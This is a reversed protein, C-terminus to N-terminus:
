KQMDPVPLVVVLCMFNGRNTGPNHWSEVMQFIRSFLFCFFKLLLPVRSGGCVAIRRTTRVPPPAQLNRCFLLFFYNIFPRHELSRRPVGFFYNQGPAAMIAGCVLDYIHPTSGMVVRTSSTCMEGDRPFRNTESGEHLYKWTIVIESCKYVGKYELTKAHRFRSFYLWCRSVGRGNPWVSHLSGSLM